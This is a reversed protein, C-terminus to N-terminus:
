IIQYGPEENLDIWLAEDNFRFDNKLVRECAEDGFFYKSTNSGMFNSWPSNSTLHKFLREVEEDHHGVLKLSLKIFDHIIIPNEVITDYLDEDFKIAAVLM